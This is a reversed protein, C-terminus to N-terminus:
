EVVDRIANYQKVTVRAMGKEIVGRYAQEYVSCYFTNRETVDVKEALDKLTDSKYFCKFRPNDGVKGLMHGAWFLKLMQEDTLYVFETPEKYWRGNTMHMVCSSGFERIEVIEGDVVHAAFWIHTIPQGCRSCVGHATEELTGDRDEYIRWENM